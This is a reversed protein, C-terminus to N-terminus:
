ATRDSTENLRWTVFDSLATAFCKRKVFGRDLLKRCSYVRDPEILGRGNMRMIAKFLLRPIPPRPLPYNKAALRNLVYNEVHRYNNEEFEDDSVIFIDGDRVHESFILFRIAAVVNVVSVLHLRRRGMLCSKLYNGLWSRSQLDSILKVLNLGGPGFVASPRLISYPIRGRLREAIMQELEYKTQEYNTMPRCPTEETLEIGPTNGFVSITSVHVMRRVSKQLCADLLNSLIKRNADRDGHLYALHVLVGGEPVFTDMTEPILLDGVTINLLPSSAWDPRPKRSFVHVGVSGDSLLDTLLHSGLFGTAGTLAIREM